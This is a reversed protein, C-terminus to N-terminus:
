VREPRNWEPGMVLFQRAAEALTELEAAGLHCLHETHPLGSAIFARGLVEQPVQQLLSEPSCHQPIGYM